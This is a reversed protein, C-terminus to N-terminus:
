LSSRALPVTRNSLTTRQNKARVGSSQPNSEESVATKRRSVRWLLERCLSHLKHSFLTNTVARISDWSVSTPKEPLCVGDVNVPTNGPILQAVVVAYGLLWVRTANSCAM